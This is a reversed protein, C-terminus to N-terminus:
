RVATVRFAEITPPHARCLNWPLEAYGSAYMSAFHGVNLFTAPGPQETWRALPELTLGENVRQAAHAQPIVLIDGVQVPSTTSGYTPMGAKEAYWQWGWHGLSWLTGNTQARLEEAILPAQQRYFGAYHKDSLTLLLGLLSTSAAALTKERLRARRLAPALLLLVPPVLLLVHRTAMSPAFLVLFLALGAAWLVLTWTTAAERALATPIYRACCAVLVVGNLTFLLRLVQDTAPEALWGGYAALVLGVALLGAAIWAPFLWRAPGPVLARLFLPTFPSVAGLTTLLGLARVYIGTLSPDGGQRELLHVAGFEQLNWGSWGALFLLPVLALPLWRWERHLALILPFALVLPLASYKISLAGCLALAAAAYRPGPALNGPILLLNFFLLQLALLPVDTMLGQNVLFAPCLAFLATLWPAQAPALHRALRHFCLLALLTFLARMAHMPLEAYGFLHGTLAMLYFFGPPQNFHHLPEPDNAWNVLGSMPTAPHHEIWQAAKLHFTDDIHFAKDLDLGTLAAWLLLVLWLSRGPAHGAAQRPRTDGSPGSSKPVTGM